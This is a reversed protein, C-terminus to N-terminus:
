IRAHGITTWILHSLDFRRSILYSIGVLIFVRSVIRGLILSPTPFYLSFFHLFVLYSLSSGLSSFQYGHCIDNALLVVGNFTWTLVPTFWSGRCNRAILYNITMILLIKFASSGHLTLVMVLSLVLNVPLLHLLNTFLRM